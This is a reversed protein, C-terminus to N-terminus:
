AEAGQMHLVEENKMVEFKIVFVWPNESWNGYLNDWMERFLNRSYGPKFDAGDFGVSEADVDDIDQVREVRVETVKLFIRAAEKPMHISPKWPGNYNEIDTYAKFFYDEDGRCTLCVPHEGEYKTKDPCDACVKQWTERVYLIDGPQYPGVFEFESPKLGLTKGDSWEYYVAGHQNHKVQHVGPLLKLPVCFPCDSIVLQSTKVKWPEKMPIRVETMIGDLTAKVQRTDFRISKM